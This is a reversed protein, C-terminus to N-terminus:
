VLRAVKGSMLSGCSVGKGKLLPKVVLQHREPCRHKM